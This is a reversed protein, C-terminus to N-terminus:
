IMFPTHYSLFVVQLISNVYEVLREKGYDFSPQGDQSSADLQGYLPSRFNYKTIKKEKRYKLITIVSVYGKRESLVVGYLGSITGAICKSIVRYDSGTRLTRQPEDDAATQLM